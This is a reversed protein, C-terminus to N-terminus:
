IAVRVVSILKALPLVGVREYSERCIATLVRLTPHRPLCSIIVLNIGGMKMFIRPKVYSTYNGYIGTLVRGDKVGSALNALTFIPM